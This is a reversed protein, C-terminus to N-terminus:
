FFMARTIEQGPEVIVYREDWPGNVLGKILDLSGPVIEFQMGFTEATQRSWAEYPALDYAGTDILAIRKYNKMMVRAVMQAKQQSYKKTWEHTGQYMALPGTNDKLWGKTFYYTGPEKWCQEQYKERSGLFIAICDDTKPLVLRSRRSQLGATGESCLGFGLLITDWRDEQDLEALVARLKENLLRPVDHLGLGVIRIEAGDPTSREIEPALCECIVLVTKGTDM